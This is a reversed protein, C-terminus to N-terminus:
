KRRLHRILVFVLGGSLLMVAGVAAIILAVSPLAPAPDDVDGTSEEGPEGTQVEGESGQPDTVPLPPTQSDPPLTNPPQTLPPDTEPPETVPPNTVPPDTVPPDVYGGEEGCRSCKGGGEPYKHGKADLTERVIHHEVGEVKGRLMRFTVACAYEIYGDEECTAKKYDLEYLHHADPDPADDLDRVQGRCDCIECRRSEKGAFMCTTPYDQEYEGLVHEHDYYAIIAEADAQAMLKLKETDRILKVENPNSIYCHEVIVAPVAFKACWGPIGYYDSLYGKSPNLPYDWNDEENWYYVTDGFDPQLMLGRDPVGIKDHLNATVNKGLTKMSYEPIVSVIVKAGSWSTNEYANFHLSMCFDANLEDCFRAREYLTLYPGSGERTMYVVFNGNAELLRKIEKAVILSQERETTEGNVAGPDHGGHGPDLVVVVKGDETLASAGTPLLFLVAAFCLIVLVRILKKGMTAGERM